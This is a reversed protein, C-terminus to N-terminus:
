TNDEMVQSMYIEQYVDCTKLLDDHKGYAIANGQELVLIHDAHRISSIRQSVFIRTMEPYELNMATRLAFDTAYDLASFSDDLILITPELCLSRAICLRQRQGGSLNKGGQDLHTDLGDKQKMVFDYAQACRLAKIMSVEDVEPHGLTLNYRITGTLLVNKQPVLVVKSRYFSEKYAKINKGYFRIEGDSVELIRNFLQALTSKGSGTGGIIGLTQAPQLSLSLNKILPETTQMYQFSVQNVELLPLTSDFTVDTGDAFSPTMALIEEVRIASAYGRTFIVTINAVVVLALFIQTLYNVLAVIEGSSLTGTNVRIGGFWLVAIIGANVLLYTLPNMLAVIKGVNTLHRSVDYSAAVFRQEEREQASFARIVRVGSINQALLSTLGDIKGQIKRYYPISASMCLWLILAICLMVVIFILTLQANITFALLVSGIVIFPARVALRILMAVALQIQNVDSTIRTTLTNSGLKQVQEQSLDNMTEFLANRLATGVGQSTLSAYYQCIISFSYGLFALLLMASGLKVIVGTDKNVIGEDIIHAMLLPLLLEFIAELWKFFPGLIFQKKYSKLHSLVHKM